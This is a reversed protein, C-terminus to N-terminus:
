KLNPNYVLDRIIKGKEIDMYFVSKDQAKDLVLMKTDQENLLMKRPDIDNQDRDDRM